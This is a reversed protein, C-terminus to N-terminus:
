LGGVIKWGDAERALRLHEVGELNIENGRNRITLRYTGSITARDGSVEIHRDLSRYDIRDFSRFNEELEKKEAAYNKGKDNYAPSLISLYLTIDKTTLAQQRKIAVAEVAERDASGASCGFILLLLFFLPWRKRAIEPFAAASPKKQGDCTARRM